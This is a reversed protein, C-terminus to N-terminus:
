AADGGTRNAALYGLVDARLYRVRKSGVKTFPVGRRLYRDQALSAESISLYAALQKATM